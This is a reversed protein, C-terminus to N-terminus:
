FLQRHTGSTGEITDTTAISSKDRAVVLKGDGMIM